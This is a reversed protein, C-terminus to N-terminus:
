VGGCWRLWENRRREKERGRETEGGGVRGDIGEGSSSCREGERSLKRRREGGVM